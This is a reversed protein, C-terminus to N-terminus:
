LPRRFTARTDRHGAIARLAIITRDFLRNAHVMYCRGGAAPKGSGACVTSPATM